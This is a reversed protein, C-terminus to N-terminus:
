AHPGAIHGFTFYEVVATDRISSRCEAFEELAGLESAFYTREPTVRYYLPKEGFRDRALLLRNEKGDYLAFAFMGNLERLTKQMGWRSYAKLIVETDSSTRFSSGEAKLRARLELYNYIEGNFVIVNGDDDVMPQHGTALDIISLRNHA